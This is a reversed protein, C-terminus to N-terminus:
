RTGATTTPMVLLLAPSCLSFDVALYGHNLTRILGDGAANTLEAFSFGEFIHYCVVLLAAVGRLGDLLDYHPKADLFTATANVNKM